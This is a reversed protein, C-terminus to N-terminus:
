LCKEVRRVIDMHPGHNVTNWSNYTSDWLDVNDHHVGMTVFFKAGMDKYMKILADADFNEAKWLEIIDKYGFESPHGYHKLHYKYDKSGQRYM